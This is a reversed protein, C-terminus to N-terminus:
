STDPQVSAAQELGRAPRGRCGVTPVRGDFLLKRKMKNHLENALEPLPAGGKDPDAEHVFLYPKGQDLTADVERLCNRSLLDTARL